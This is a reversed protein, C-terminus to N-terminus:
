WQDALRQLIQFAPGDTLVRGQVALRNARVIALTLRLLMLVVGMVYLAAAWTALSLRRPTTPPSVIEAQPMLPSRDVETSPSQIQLENFPTQEIQGQLPVTEVQNAAMTAINDAAHQDSLLAFTLPLMVLGIVLATVNVSYRWQVGRRKILRSVVTAVLALLIFQWISHLLTLCFRVTSDSDLWSFDIM